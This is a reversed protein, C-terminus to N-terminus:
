LHTTSNKQSKLYECWISEVDRKNGYLHGGSSNMEIGMKIGIWLIGWVDGQKGSTARRKTLRTERQTTARIMETINHHWDVLPICELKYLFIAHSMMPSIQQRLLPSPLSCSLLFPISLGKWNDTSCFITIKICIQLCIKCPYIESPIKLNEKLNYKTIGRCNWLIKSFVSSEGEGGGAIEATGCHMTIDSTSHSIHGNEGDLICWYKKRVSHHFWNLSTTSISMAPRWCNGNIKMIIIITM